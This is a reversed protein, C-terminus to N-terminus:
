LVMRLPINYGRISRDDLVKINITDYYLNGAVNQDQGDAKVDIKPVCTKCHYMGNQLLFIEPEAPPVTKSQDIKWTGDFDTQASAFAPLLLVIVFEVMLLRKM